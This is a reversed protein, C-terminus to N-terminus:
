RCKLTLSRKVTSLLRCHTKVQSIPIGTEYSMAFEKKLVEEGPNM